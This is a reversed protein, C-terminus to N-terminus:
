ISRTLSIFLSKEIQPLSFSFPYSLSIQFHVRDHTSISAICQVHFQPYFLFYNLNISGISTRLVYPDSGFRATSSRPSHKRSRSGSRSRSRSRSYSRSHSHSMHPSGKGLGRQRQLSFDRSRSHSSASPKLHPPPRPTYAFGFSQDTTPPVASLIGPPCADHTRSLAAILDDRNEPYPSKLFIKAAVRLEETIELKKEERRM